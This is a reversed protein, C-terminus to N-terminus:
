LMVVAAAARLTPAPFILLLADAAVRALDKDLYPSFSGGCVEVLAQPEM